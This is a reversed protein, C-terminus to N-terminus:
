WTPMARLLEATGAVSLPVSFHYGQAFDCGMRRLQQLQVRTEVGEAVVAMGLDRALTAVTRVLEGGEGRADIRAVLSRDIKLTSIPFRDLYSLSSYGIGFDDIQIEIGLAGLEEIMARAVETNEILVTETIELKLRRPDLRTEELVEEVRRVLDRQSFHKGSLNVSVTLDSVNALEGTWAQLQACAQRLTWWGLPVITGTEEAIGIFAPPALMGREPHQWRLLAELGVVRGTSLSVIPQFHVRFEDRELGRRLDTELRLREVVDSHMAADFVRYMGRGVLKARYMAIDADRLIDEPQTYGGSPVIGISAGTYVELDELAFPESLSALIREAVRAADAVGPTHHLVVGFEDGALRAVMDEPRVCGELRRGIDILLADGKAHGFSDNVLKFRDLDVFLVAFANGPQREERGMARTLRKLFSARNPLGTLPDHLALHKLQDDSQRRRTVDESIGAVRYVNGSADRVPFSRTRIWCATGDARRIRYEREGQAMVFEEFTGMGARDDPHVDRLLRQPDAYLSACSRGWVREFAPSVFLVRWTACDVLWFVEEINEAVQRFREESERLAAEAQKSESIDRATASFFQLRGQDDHHAVVVQSVPVETGRSDLVALEGRWIGARGAAPIVENLLRRTAWPPYVDPLTLDSSEAEALGLLARASANAYLIRGRPDITIVYDPTADLIAALQRRVAGAERQETVDTATVIAGSGGTEEGLPMVSVEMVVWRGDRHRVRLERPTHRGEGNMRRTFGRMADSADEPHVREFVSRGVVEQPSYGLVREVAGGVHQVTTGPTVQAVVHAASDLMELLWHGRDPAAPPPAAADAGVSVQPSAPGKSRVQSV